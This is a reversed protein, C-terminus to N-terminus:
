SCVVVPDRLMQMLQALQQKLDIESVTFKEKKLIESLHQDIVYRIASDEDLDSYTKLSVQELIVLFAEFTLGAQKRPSKQLNKNEEDEQEIYPDINRGSRFRSTTSNRKVLIEKVLIELDTQNLLKTKIITTM